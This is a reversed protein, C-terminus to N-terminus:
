LDRRLASCDTSSITSFSTRVNVSFFRKSSVYMM